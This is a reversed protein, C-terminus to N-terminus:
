QVGLFASPSPPPMVVSRRPSSFEFFRTVAFRSSPPMSLSGLWLRARTQSSVM